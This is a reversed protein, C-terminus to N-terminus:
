RWDSITNEKRAEKLAAEEVTKAATPLILKNKKYFIPNQM